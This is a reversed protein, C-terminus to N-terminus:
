RISKIVEKYIIFICHVFPMFLTYIIDQFECNVTILFDGVTPALLPEIVAFM